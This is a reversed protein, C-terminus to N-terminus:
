LAVSKVFNGGGSIDCMPSSKESFWILGFRFMSGFQFFEFCFGFNM